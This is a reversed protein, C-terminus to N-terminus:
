APPDVPGAADAPCAVGSANATKLESMKWGKPKGVPGERRAGPAERGMLMEVVTSGAHGDRRRHAAISHCYERGGPFCAGWKDWYATPLEWADPDVPAGFVRALSFTSEFFDNIEFATTDGVQSAASNAGAGADEAAIAAEAVELVSPTGRARLAEDRRKSLLKVVAARLIWIPLMSVRPDAVSSAQYRVLLSTLDPTLSEVQVRAWYDQTEFSILNVLGLLLMHQEIPGRVLPLVNPTEAWQALAAPSLTQQARLWLVQRAAHVYAGRKDRTSLRLVGVALDPPMVQSLMEYTLEFRHEDAAAAIDYVPAPLGISRPVSALQADVDSLDSIRRGPSGFAIAGVSMPSPLMAAADASSAFADVLDLSGQSRHKYASALPTVFPGYLAQPPVKHAPPIFAAGSAWWAAPEPVPMVPMDVKANPPLPSLLDEISVRSPSRQSVVWDTESAPASASAHSSPTASVPQSSSASTTASTAVSSANATSMSTDRQGTPGLAANIIAVPAASWASPPARPTWDAWVKDQKEGWAANAIHTTPITSAIDDAVMPIQLGNTMPEAKLVVPLWQEPWPLNDAEDKHADVTKDKEGNAGRRARREARGEESWRRLTKIEAEGGHQRLATELQMIWRCLTTAHEAAAEIRQKLDTVEISLSALQNLRRERHNRQKERNKRRRTELADDAGDPAPSGASPTPSPNSRRPRKRPSTHTPASAAAPRHTTGGM